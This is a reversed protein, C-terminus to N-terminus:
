NETRFKNEELLLQQMKELLKEKDIDRKQVEIKKDYLYFNNIVPPQPLQITPAPVKENQSPLLHTCGM